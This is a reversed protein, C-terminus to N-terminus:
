HNIGDNSLILSKKKIPQEVLISLRFLRILLTIKTELSGLHTKEETMKITKLYKWIEWCSSRFGIRDLEIKGEKFTKKEKSLSKKITFKLPKVIQTNFFEDSM